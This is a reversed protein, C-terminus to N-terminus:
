AGSIRITTSRRIRAEQQGGGITVGKSKTGHRRLDQLRKAAIAEKAKGDKQGQRLEAAAFMVILTDDLTAPDSEAILPGLARYGQFRITGATVPIPWTEFQLTGIAPTYWDWNQVPDNRNDLGSDFINYQVETDIGFDIPIWQNGWRVSVKTVWDPNVSSPFDYYRQGAALTKDADRIKLFPWPNDDYLVDQTRRLIQKYQAVKEQGVAANTSASIEARLQTVLAGLTVGRAM